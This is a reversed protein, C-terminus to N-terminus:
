DSTLDVIQDGSTTPVNIPSAERKVARARQAAAQAEELRRQITALEGQLKAMFQLTNEEEGNDREEKVPGSTRRTKRRSPGAEPADEQTNLPRKKSPREPLPVIDKAQLLAMPMYSFIFKAFPKKEEGIPDIGDISVGGSQEPDGLSVAHSGAKKSKENIPGIESFPRPVFVKSRNYRRMRTMTVCITGLAGDSYDATAAHDDSKLATFVFPRTQTPTDYVGICEGDPERLHAEAHVFRGDMYIDVMMLTDGSEDAWHVTFSKGEESAIWCLATRTGKRRVSYMELEEGDCRIHASYGNLELPM